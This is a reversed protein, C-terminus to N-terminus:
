LALFSNSMPKEETRWTEFLSVVIWHVIRNRYSSEKSPRLGIQWLRRSWVM